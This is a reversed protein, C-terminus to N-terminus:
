TCNDIGVANIVWTYEVSAALAQIYTGTHFIASKGAEHMYIQPYGIRFCYIRGLRGLRALALM